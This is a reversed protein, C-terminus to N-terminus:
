VRARGGREYGGGSSRPNLAEEEPAADGAPVGASCRRSEAAKDSSAEDDSALPLMGSAHRSHIPSCHVTSSMRNEPAASVSLPPRTQAHIPPPAFLQRKLAPKYLGGARSCALPARPCTHMRQRVNATSIRSYRSSHRRSHISSPRVCGRTKRGLRRSMCALGAAADGAGAASADSTLRRKPPAASGGGPTRPRAIALARALLLAVGPVSINDDIVSNFPAAEVLTAVAAIAWVRPLVTSWEVAM